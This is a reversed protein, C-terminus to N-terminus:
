DPDIWWVMVHGRIYVSLRPKTEVNLLLLREVSLYKHILEM